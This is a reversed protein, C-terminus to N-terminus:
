SIKTYRFLGYGRNGTATRSILGPKEGERSSRLGCELILRLGLGEVREGGGGEETCFVM